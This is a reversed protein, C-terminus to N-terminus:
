GPPGPGCCRAGVYGALPGWAGGAAEQSPRWPAILAWVRRALVTVLVRWGALQATWGPRRVRMPRLPTARRTPAKPAMVWGLISACKVRLARVLRQPVGQDGAAKELLRDWEGSQLAGRLRAIQDRAELRGQPRVVTHEAYDRAELRPRARRMRGLSAAQRHVSTCVWRELDEDPLGPPAKLSAQWAKLRLEQEYDERSFGRSDVGSTALRRAGARVFREFDAAM